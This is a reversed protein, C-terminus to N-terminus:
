SRRPMVVATRGQLGSPEQTKPKVVSASEAVDSLESEWQDTYKKIESAPTAPNSFLSKYLEALEEGFRAVYAREARTLLEQRYTIGDSAQQALKVSDEQLRQIQGRLNGLDQEATVVRTVLFSLADAPEAPINLAPNASQLSELTAQLEQSMIHGGIKNKKLIKSVDASPYLKHFLDGAEDATLLDDAFLSQAKLILAGPVAGSRVLSVEELNANHITYTCLEEKKGEGIKYKKGPWHHCNRYDRIDNGCISCERVGGSIGMSVESISKDMIKRIYDNTNTYSYGGGLGLDRDIYADVNVMKDNKKYTSGDTRGIGFDSYSHSQLIPVGARADKAFNSLSSEGFYCFRDPVLAGTAITAEFYYKDETPEADANFAIGIPVYDLDLNDSQSDLVPEVEGHKRQM